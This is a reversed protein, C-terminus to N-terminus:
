ATSGGAKKQSLITGDHNNHRKTREVVRTSLSTASIQSFVASYCRAHVHCTLTESDRTGARSRVSVSLFLIDARSGDAKKRSTAIYSVYIQKRTTYQSITYQLKTERNDIKCGCM